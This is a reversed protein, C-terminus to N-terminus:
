TTSFARELALMLVLLGLFALVFLQPSCTSAVAMDLIILTRLARRVAFQVSKADPRTIALGIPLTLMLAIVAAAIPWSSPRLGMIGSTAQELESTARLATIIGALMVFVGAALLWRSSERAETRAFITVGAIYIGIGAAIAWEAPSWPRVVNPDVASAALSMGLLVNLTRCGGMAIPGLITKKMIADYAVICAALSITVIAIRPIETHHAIHLALIVGLALMGWGITAARSRAIRGSPIPREPREVADLKADFVDNLVMGSLYLLASITAFVCFVQPPHLSGRTVLYGMMVDAIATFVAPLRLLEFYARWPSSNFRLPRPSRPPPDPANM